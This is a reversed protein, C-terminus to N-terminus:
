YHRGGSIGNDGGISGGGYCRHSLWRLVIRLSLFDRGGFSGLGLFRRNSLPGFRRRSMRREKLHNAFRDNREFLPGTRTLVGNRLEVFLLMLLQRGIEPLKQENM